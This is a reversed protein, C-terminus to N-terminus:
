PLSPVTAMSEKKQLSTARRKRSASTSLIGKKITESCNVVQVILSLVEDLIVKKVKKNCPHKAYRAMKYSTLLERAAPGM